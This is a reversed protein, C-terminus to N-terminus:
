NLACRWGDVRMSVCSPCKVKSDKSSVKSSPARRPSIRHRSDVRCVSGCPGIRLHGTCVRRWHKKKKSLPLNASLLLKYAERSSRM